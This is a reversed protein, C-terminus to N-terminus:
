SKSGLPALLSALFEAPTETAASVGANALLRTLFIGLARQSQPTGPYTLEDETAICLTVLEDVFRDDVAAVVLHEGRLEREKRRRDRAGSPSLDAKLKRPRAM